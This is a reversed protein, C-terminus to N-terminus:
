AGKETKVLSVGLMWDISVNYFQALTGLTELNPEIQGLEYKALSSRNVGTIDAVQQQTYGADIRAKKIRQPFVEKYM